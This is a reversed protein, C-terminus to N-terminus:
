DCRRESVICVSAGSRALAEAVSLGCALPMGMWYALRFVVRAPLGYAPAAGPRSKLLTYLGNRPLQGFRNLASQVWGFPNQRLSFHHESRLAFGSDVLLRRLGALPFHFLHRPLDLHFWAAGSWRAQVSSYNPVAVILRGGPKLIRGIEQLTRRPDPLHELVHWVIVEDFSAAAYGADELDSGIRISARPDAAAAAAANIEFGHVEFGRDALSSLLVGRGCGVDLVRAGPPLGRSLMRVHRAGVLRVLAEVMPVFKAGTIGYYSPPYFCDIMERPPQPHLRGLGCETCDVVRLPSGPILFRPRALESGCVPCESVQVSQQAGPAVAEVACELGFDAPGELSSIATERKGLLQIVEQVDIEIPAAAALDIEACPLEVDLLM